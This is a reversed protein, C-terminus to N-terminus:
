PKPCPPANKHIARGSPDVLLWTGGFETANQCNIDGRSRDGLFYYLPHGAYTVQTTGDARRARGLLSARAGGTARPAASTVAPPWARACAGACQSAPGSDRTFLYLTRRRADVLIQGFPATRRVAIELGAGAGASPSVPQGHATGGTSATPSKSASGCGAATAGVLAVALWARM